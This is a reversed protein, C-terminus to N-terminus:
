FKYQLMRFRALLFRGLHINKPVFSLIILVVCGPLFQIVCGGSSGTELLFGLLCHEEHFFRSSLVGFYKMTYSDAMMWQVLFFATGNSRSRETRNMYICFHWFLFAAGQHYVFKPLEQFFLLFVFLEVYVTRCGDTSHTTCSQM